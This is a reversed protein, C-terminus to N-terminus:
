YYQIIDINTSKLGKLYATTSDMRWPSTKRNKIETKVRGALQTNSMLLIQNRDAISELRYAITLPHGICSLEEYIQEVGTKCFFLYGTGIAAKVEFKTNYLEKICQACCCFSKDSAEKDSHVDGFVKSFVVLIGDGMIKDIHGNCDKVIKLVYSYYEALFESVEEISFDSIKTSFETIDIFAVSSYSKQGMVKQEFNEFSFDERLSKSIKKNLFKEYLRNQFRESLM